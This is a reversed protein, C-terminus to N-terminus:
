RDALPSGDLCEGKGIAALFSPGLIWTWRGGDRVAHLRYTAPSGSVTVRITVLKATREPVGRVHIPADAVRRVDYREKGTSVNTAMAESCLVYQARSILRRHGPHLEGWQAAWRGSLEEQLIRTIFTGASEAGSGGSGGCGAALLALAAALVAARRLASGQEVGHRVM